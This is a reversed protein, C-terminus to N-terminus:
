DFRKNGDYETDSVVMPTIIAIFIPTNRRQFPNGGAM